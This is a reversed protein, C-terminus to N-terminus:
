IQIEAKMAVHNNSGNGSLSLNIRDVCMKVVELSHISLKL